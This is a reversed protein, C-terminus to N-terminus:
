VNQLEDTSELQCIRNGRLHKKEKTLDETDYLLSTTLRGLNALIYGKRLFIMILCVPLFLLFFFSIVTYTHTHQTHKNHTHTYSSKM